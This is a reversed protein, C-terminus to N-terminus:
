CVSIAPDGAHKQLFTPISEPQNQSKGIVHHVNPMGPPIEADPQNATKHRDRIRRIRAQRREIQALQHTFGKRSTRAYRSKASRHELEGQLLFSILTLPSFTSYRVTETTYSDTTGYAKIASVYDGLAHIKYTNLNLTKLQRSNCLPPGTQTPVGAEPIASLLPERETIDSHPPPPHSIGNASDLNDAITVNFPQRDAPGTAPTQTMNPNDDNRPPRIATANKANRRIRANYERPLERTVFASCTTNNFDRLQQGLAGTESDLIDLTFDNHLRLKALAHWHALTFLLRLVETNHPDPLLGDFVPIACKDFPGAILV